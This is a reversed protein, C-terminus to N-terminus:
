INNVASNEIAKANYKSKPAISGAPSRIEDGQINGILRAIGDPGLNEYSIHQQKTNESLNEPPIVCPIGDQELKYPCLNDGGKMVSIFSNSKLDSRGLAWLKSIFIYLGKMMSNGTHICYSTVALLLHVKKMSYHRGVLYGVNYLQQMLHILM